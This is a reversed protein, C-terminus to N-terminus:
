KIGHKHNCYLKTLEIKNLKKLKTTNIIARHKGIHAEITPNDHLYMGDDPPKNYNRDSM